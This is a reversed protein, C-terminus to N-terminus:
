KLEKETLETLRDLYTQLAPFLHRYVQDYLDSYFASRTSDSAFSESEIRTMAMAATQVDPYFGAAHAAIIGAGLAAVEKTTSRVVPKGTVDAIIQCWTSSSAGGGVAVLREINAGLANQMENMHLRIEFAIGEMIARYLHARTHVGRWGVVVGSACADWYPNMVSNWYPVLMLGLSGPPVRQIEEHLIQANMEVGFNELFWNILYTGSLIVSELLYAGRLGSNTTRFARNTMFKQALTGSVVSTGLSLMAIGPQAVNAGLAAAQGDGIGAVIPLGIPLGCEKAAVENVEGIIEGTPFVDPLQDMRLGIARVLQESWCQNQSDFLGTPDVCGWGTRYHGTLKHVLFSHVDLFKFTRAFIAPENQKLWFIKGISLNGALPKGTLQHITDRNCLRDIEPLLARCREDMWLIADRLPQGNEDVPVFTERQHTICLAALRRADIQTIAARLAQVTATWWSDAPQEHWTPRPMRLPITGRGEAVANGQADWVLVKSATTSCDIGMVLDKKM